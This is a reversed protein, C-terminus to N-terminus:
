SNIMPGRPEAAPPTPPPSRRTGTYRPPQRPRVLPPPPATLLRPLLRALRHPRPDDLRRTVDHRFLPQVGERHARERLADGVRRRGDVEVEAVLLLQQPLHHLLTEAAQALRHAGLGLRQARPGVGPAPVPRHPPRVR